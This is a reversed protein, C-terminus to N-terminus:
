ALRYSFSVCTSSKVTRPKHQEQRIPLIHRQITAEVENPPSFGLFLRRCALVSVSFNIKYLYKRQDKVIIIQSIIMQTFNYMTLKAFIEQLIGEPKKSHFNRLALAYKLGRFSTEIEWRMAYIAKLKELPFDSTNLNTAIVEYNGNSLEFRVLRFKLNFIDLPDSKRLRKPLFDFTTNHAIFKYHNKDKFLERTQNTQKRMMKLDFSIDFTDGFESLDFGSAIGNSNIDKFRLLFFQGLEQIHAMNNLSEFGRDAIFITPHLFCTRKAMEVLAKHENKEFPKQIYADTYVKACLDFLATLHYLNSIEGNSKQQFDPTSFDSGDVALLRYGLFLKNSTISDTFQHFLEEFASPKIKDRQQVFASVSAINSKCGFIELLEKNLSKGSFCLIAKLMESFTLKRDRSFDVGPNYCYLDKKLSVENICNKLSRKVRRANNM